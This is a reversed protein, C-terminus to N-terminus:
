WNSFDTINKMKKCFPCEVYITTGISCPILKLNPLYTDLDIDRDWNELNNFCEHSIWWERAAEEESNDIMRPIAYSIFNKKERMKNLDDRIKDHDIKSMSYNGEVM